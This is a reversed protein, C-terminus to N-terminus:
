DFSSQFAYNAMGYGGTIGNEIDLQQRSQHFTGGTARWSYSWEDCGVPGQLDASMQGVGM